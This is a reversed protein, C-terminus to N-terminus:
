FIDLAIWYNATSLSMFTVFKWWDSIKSTNNQGDPAQVGGFRGRL